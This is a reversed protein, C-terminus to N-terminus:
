AVPPSLFAAAEIPILVPLTFINQKIKHPKTQQRCEAAQSSNKSFQFRKSPCFSPNHRHKNPLLNLRLSKIAFDHANEPDFNFLFPRFISFM